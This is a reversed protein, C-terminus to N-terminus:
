ILSMSRFNPPMWFISLNGSVVKKTTQTTNKQPTQAVNKNRLYEIAKPLDGGTEELARKADMMGAGTQERLQAVTKADITM